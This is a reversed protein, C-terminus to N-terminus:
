SLWTAYGVRVDADNTKQLHLTAQTCSNGRVSSAPWLQIARRTVRTMCPAATGRAGVLRLIGSAPPPPLPSVRLPAGLPSGRLQHAAYRRREEEAEEWPISLQQHHHPPQQHHHPPQQHHHQPQLHHAHHHSPVPRIEDAARFDDGGSGGHRQPHYPYHPPTPNRYPPPPSCPEPPARLTAYHPGDHRHHPVTPPPPPLPQPSPPPPQPLPQHHVRQHTPDSPLYQM